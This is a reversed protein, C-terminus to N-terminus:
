FEINPQLLFQLNDVGEDRLRGHYRKDSEWIVGLALTVAFRKDKVPWKKDVKFYHRVFQLSHSSVDVTYEFGSNKLFSTESALFDLRSRRLSVYLVDTVDPNAHFKGGIRFSWHLKQTPSERDGKIKWEVEYWDDRILENDKIHYNGVSLLYGMFGKNWCEKKQGARSFSVVDGLFFSAAWPEQFGATIVKVWNFDEGMDADEYTDRFNKKVVVGLCPMPNISAELLFFRPLYSSFLLDRYIEFEKKEGVYPIPKDTLSGILDVSTYYADLDFDLEFRVGKSQSAGNKAAGSPMARKGTDAANLRAAPFPAPLILLAVFLLWVKRV